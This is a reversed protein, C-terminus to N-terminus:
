VAPVHSAAKRLKKAISSVAGDGFRRKENLIESGEDEHQALERTVRSKRRWATGNEGRRRIEHDLPQRLALFLPTLAKVNEDWAKRQEQCGILKDSRTGFSAEDSETQM